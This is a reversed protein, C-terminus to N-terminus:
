QCNSVPDFQQSGSMAVRTYTQKKGNSLLLQVNSFRPMLPKVVLSRQVAVKLLVDESSCSLTASADVQKGDLRVKVDQVQIFAYGGGGGGSDIPANYGGGGGGNFGESICSTSMYNVGEVTVTGTVCSWGPGSMMVAEASTPVFAFLSVFLPLSGRGYM